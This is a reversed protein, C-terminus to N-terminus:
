WVNNYLIGLINIYSLNGIIKVMPVDVINEWYTCILLNPRMGVLKM